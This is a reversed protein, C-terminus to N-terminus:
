VGEWAPPVVKVPVKVPPPSPTLTVVTLPDPDQLTATLEILALPAVMVKLLQLPLPVRVTCTFAPVAWSLKPFVEATELSLASIVTSLIEGVKAVVVGVVSIASIAIGLEM